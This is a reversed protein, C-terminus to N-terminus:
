KQKEQKTLCTADGADERGEVEEDQGEHSGPLGRDDVHRVNGQAVPAVVHAGGGDATVTCTVITPNTPHIVFLNQDLYFSSAEIISAAEPHKQILNSMQTPYIANPIVLQSGGVSACVVVIFLM